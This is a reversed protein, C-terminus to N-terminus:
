VIYVPDKENCAQVSGSPELLKLSGSKLVTPVHLHYPQWDKAGVVKVEWYINRNSMETLPQTLGLAMTRSFPNHWHFTGIDGGPISLLHLQYCLHLMKHTENQRSCGTLLWTFWPVMTHSTRAVALTALACDTVWNTNPGCRTRGYSFSNGSPTSWNKCKARRCPQINGGETAQYSSVLMELSAAAEM